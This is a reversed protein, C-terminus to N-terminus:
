SKHFQSSLSSLDKWKYINTDQLTEPLHYVYKRLEPYQWYLQSIKMNPENPWHRSSNQQDRKLILTSNSNNSIRLLTLTIKLPESLHLSYLTTNPSKNLIQRTWSAHIILNCSIDGKSSSSCIIAAILYKTRTLTCGLKVWNDM